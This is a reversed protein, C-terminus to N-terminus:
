SGASGKRTVAGETGGSTPATMAVAKVDVKHKRSRGSARLLSRTTQRRKLQRRAGRREGGAAHGASEEVEQRELEALSPNHNNTLASRLTAL